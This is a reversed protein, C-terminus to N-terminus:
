VAAPRRRFRADERRTESAEVGGVRACGRAADGGCEEARGRGGRRVARLEADRRVRGRASRRHFKEPARFYALTTKAQDRAPPGHYLYGGRRGVRDRRRRGRERGRVSRARAGRAPERGPGPRERRRARPGGGRVREQLEAMGRRRARFRQAGERGGAPDEQLLRPTDDVGPRCHCSGDMQCDGHKCPSCKVSCDLGTWFRDCKCSGDSVCAGHDRDCPLCEVFAPTSCTRGSWGEDCACSGDEYACRGNACM